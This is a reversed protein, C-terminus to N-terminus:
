GLGGGLGGYGLGGYGLGGYGPYGYGLGNGYNRWGFGGPYHGNWYGHVWGQHYGMYPNNWGTGMRNVNAANVTNSRNINNFTNGRNFNNVTNARNFNNSTNIRTANSFTNGRNLNGMSSGPMQTITRPMSFSPTRNFAPAAYGGPLRRVRRWPVRRVWRRRPLWRVGGGGGHFGGGGGHGGGHFAYAPVTLNLSLFGVLAFRRYRKTM